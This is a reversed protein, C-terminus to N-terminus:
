GFAEITVARFWDRALAAERNRVSVDASLPSLGGAGEVSTLTDDANSYVGVISIAEEPTTFSYCTNLLKTPEPREDNLIRAIAYAAIRGQLSAAFASKPMPSAITADGIVHIHDQLRSAFSVPHVPCWGTADTVGARESIWGAKQPPIVNAVAATIDEFDTFLTRNAPDVRSVRGDLSASRWELHDPYHQAWAELFLPKKSFNDQADLVLLKSKPKRTKLYHAILSAREYPGPPCRFPAPPVSMVVLGGDEMAELFLRLRLTQRGAKWAHPMADAAAEDYGEIADWRLDVGPSLILKDYSLSAGSMLRVTRGVPDVDEAVDQVVRIGAAALGAYRFTQNDIDRDSSLVLNSFPCAVYRDNAEVLTIDSAPLLAKLQRAAITGGFGGGVVLISAKVNESRVPWGAMLGLSAGLGVVTQRRNLKM